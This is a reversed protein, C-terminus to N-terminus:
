VFVCQCVACIYGGHCEELCKVHSWVGCDEESCQIWDHEALVLGTEDDVDDKYLGFCVCCTDQGTERYTSTDDGEVRRRKPYTKESTQGPLKRKQGSYEGQGVSKKKQQKAQEKKKALEEKKRAQEEKKKALEAKKAERM